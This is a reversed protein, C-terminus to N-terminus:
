PVAGWTLDDGSVDDAGIDVYGRALLATCRAARSVAVDRAFLRWFSRVATAKGLVFVLTGSPMTTAHPLQAAVGAPTRAGDDGADLRVAIAKATPDWAPLGFPPRGAKGREVAAGGPGRALLRLAPPRPPTV